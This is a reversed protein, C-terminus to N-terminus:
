LTSCLFYLSNEVANQCLLQTQLHEAEAAVGSHPEAGLIRESVEM